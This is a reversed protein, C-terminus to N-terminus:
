KWQEGRYLVLRKDTLCSLYIIWLVPILFVIFSRGMARVKYKKNDHEIIEGIKYERDPLIINYDFTVGVM